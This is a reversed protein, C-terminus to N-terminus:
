GQPVRSQAPVPATRGIAAASHERIVWGEGNIRITIVGSTQTFYVPIGRKGLRDRLNADARETFPFESDCVVVAAPKVADLLAESLAVGRTPLGAIVIEARLDSGSALLSRQGDYGLDSLLLVRAGGFEGSVVLASDDARAFQEGPKPHLVRWPGVSAGGSAQRIPVGRAAVEALVNRYVPSRQRVGSILVQDAPFFRLLEGAGGVHLSDGHTLMCGRLRDVGQSRLFPKMIREAPERNGTDFLWAGHTDTEALVSMGGNLPLVTISTGYGKAVGSWQAVALVLAGLLAPWAWRWKGKFCGGSEGGPHPDGAEDAPDRSEAAPSRGAAYQFALLVMGGYWGAHFLWPPSTVNFYALPLDAGSKSLWIMGAMCAWASHNLLGALGSWAAGVLLSTLNAALALSSLPVVLLNALMTVPSLIHFYSATLPLAGLWAAISTALFPALYRNWAHQAAQRWRPALTQPLLPDYFRVRRLWDTIPYGLVALALVVCFSLQFSAGFLQQPDWILIILAAAALSNLLNSPRRLAYGLLLVSMMITARIASPQWGTAWTYFWILPIVLCGAAARPVRLIFFLTTLFGGILVIHLGSIAFIHMTGSLVFPEYFEADVGGKWGLTMAWLLRLSDDECPLDLALTRQAWGLFLDAVPRSSPTGVCKWQEANAPRLVFHINQRALYKRYDFLGEAMAALPTTLLGEIEVERGAYLDGPALGPTSVLVRGCAPQWGGDITRLASVRLRALFSRSEQENRFSVRASPTELLVGRVSVLSREVGGIARLDYPSLIATRWSLNTLGALFVLVWLLHWRARRACCAVVAVLFASVFLPLLPPRTIDALILGLAYGLVVWVLPWKM